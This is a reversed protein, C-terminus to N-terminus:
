EDANFGGCKWCMSPYAVAGVDQVQSDGGRSGHDSCFSTEEKDCECHSVGEECCGPYQCQCHTM